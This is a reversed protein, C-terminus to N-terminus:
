RSFKWAEQPSRSPFTINRTEPMPRRNVRAPDDKNAITKNKPRSKLPIVLEKGEDLICDTISEFIDEIKNIVAGAQNRDVPRTIAGSENLIANELATNNGGAQEHTLTGSDQLNSLLQDSSAIDSGDLHKWIIDFDMV